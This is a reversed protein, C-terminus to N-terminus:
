VRPPRHNQHVALFHMLAKMSEDTYPLGVEKLQAIQPSLDAISVPQRRLCFFRVYSASNIIMM